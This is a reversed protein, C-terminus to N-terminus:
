DDLEDDKTEGAAAQKTQVVSYQPDLQLYVLAFCVGLIGFAILNLDTFAALVFGVFFFPMLYKAQMMNIVMAYGVVVIFGSAVTLGDTIFAPIANLMNQVMEGNIFICVFFAPIMIRLAHLIMPVVHCMEVKKFDAQDAYKDAQHIFFVAITRVFTNLMQGAIALPLAVGIGAAIDQKGCIVLISSIVGALAVDPPLAAGVNIWGLSMMELTGGLIIGTKLDGLILGILTCVILPRELQSNELVSEIGALGAVILVLIVQITNM